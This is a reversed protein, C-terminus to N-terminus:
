KRKRFVRVEEKSVSESGREFSLVEFGVRDFTHVKSTTQEQKIIRSGM